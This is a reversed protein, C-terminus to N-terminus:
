SIRSEHADIQDHGLVTVRGHGVVGQVHADDTEKVRKIRLNVQAQMRALKRRAKNRILTETTVNAEGDLLGLRLADTVADVDNVLIM